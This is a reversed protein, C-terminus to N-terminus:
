GANGAHIVRVGQPWRADTDVHGGPEDNTSADLLALRCAQAFEPDLLYVDYAQTAADPLLRQLRREAQPVCSVVAWGADIAKPKLAHMHALVRAVRAAEPELDPPVVVFEGEGLSFTWPSVCREFWRVERPTVRAAAAAPRWTATVPVRRSLLSNLVWRLLTAWCTLAARSIGSRADRLALMRHYRAVPDGPILTTSGRRRGPPNLLLLLEGMGGLWIPLTERNLPSRALADSFMTDDDYSGLAGLTVTRLALNAVRLLATMAVERRDGIDLGPDIRKVSTPLKLAELAAITKRLQDDRDAANCDFWEGNRAKIRTQQREKLSRIGDALAQSAVLSRASAVAANVADASQLVEVHSRIRRTSLEQVAANLATVLPELLKSVNGVTNREAEWYQSIPGTSGRTGPRCTDKGPASLPKSEDESKKDVLERLDKLSQRASLANANVLSLADIVGISQRSYARISSAEAFIKLYLTSYSLAVTICAVLVVAALSLARRAVGVEGRPACLVSLLRGLTFSLLAALPVATWIGFFPELSFAVGVTMMAVAVVFMWRSIDIRHNPETDHM